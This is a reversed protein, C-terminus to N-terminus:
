WGWAIRTGGDLKICAGNFMENEIIAKVLHTFEDSTGMRAPCLSVRNIYRLVKEEASSTLKTDFLGVQITNCRINLPSMERAICLTLSDLSTKSGSYFSHGPYPSTPTACSVNIISKTKTVNDSNASDDIMYKTALRIMNFTGVTNFEMLNRAHVLEYGDKSSLLYSLAVGACNIVNDIPGHKSKFEALCTEVGEDFTSYQKLELKDLHEDSLKLDSEYEEDFQRDIGLVARGGQKLCMQMTARGLGSGCGTIVNVSGRLTNFGIRNM